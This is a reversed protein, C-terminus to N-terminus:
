HLLPSSSASTYQYFQHGASGHFKFKGPNIPAKLTSQYKIDNIYESNFSTTGIKHLHLNTISQYYLDYGKVAQEASAIDKKIKEEKAARAKNRRAEVAQARKVRERERERDRQAREWSTLKKGM